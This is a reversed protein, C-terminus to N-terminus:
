RSSIAEDVVPVRAPCLLSVVTRTRQLHDVTVGKLTLSLAFAEGDGDCFVQQAKARWTAVDQTPEIGADHLRAALTADDLQQSDTSCGALLIAAATGAAITLRLTM